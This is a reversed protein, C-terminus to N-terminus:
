SSIIYRSNRGNKETWRGLPEWHLLITRTAHWPIRGLRQLVGSPWLLSAGRWRRVWGTPHRKHALVGRSRVVWYLEGRSGRLGIRWLIILYKTIWQAYFKIMERLLQYIRNTKSILSVCKQIFPRSLQKKLGTHISQDSHREKEIQLWLWEIALSAKWPSPPSVIGECLSCHAPYSM